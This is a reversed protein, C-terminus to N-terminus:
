PATLTARRTRTVKKKDPGTIAVKIKVPLQGKRRLEAAGLRSLTITVVPKRGPRLRIKLTGLDGVQGRLACRFPSAPCVARLGTRVRIKRGARRTQAKGAKRVRAAPCGNAGARAVLPCRDVADLVGDGDDDPDCADGLGDGDLDGPAGGTLTPCSDQADPTGDRDDDTDCPDGQGDRDLDSQNPNAATSCNDSGDALGDNDDDPDCADGEGDGDTNVQSSNAAALCNDSADAFGDGDDDGDCADGEGDADVNAQDANPTTLCNDAADFKGDGDGDDCADGQGDTDFDAQTPNPTSLCNDQFDYDGDGDGDPPPPDPEAAIAAVEADSLTGNYVRIRSVAGTSHEGSDDWFFGVGESGIETRDGSDFYGLNQTGNVYFLAFDCCRVVAVEVYAGATVPTGTGLNDAGDWFSLAGNKVYLGDEPGGAGAPDTFDLLRRYDSVTALRFEFVISYDVNSAIGGTLVQLGNGEPFTLVRNPTPGVTEWAFANGTGVDTMAPAGAVSSARSDDFRYDAVLTAARAPSTVAAVLLGVLLITRFDLM